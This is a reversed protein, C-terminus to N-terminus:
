SPGRLEAFLDEYTAAVAAPSAWAEVFSRANEGMGIREDPHEILHDIAKVFAEADNPPVSIGAGSRDAIEAIESGPDVSAVFPRGAALISFTKSPVSSRALGKKLVVVHIDAAALVEALREIPQPDVFTVNSLGRAHDELETRAAGTGNIVFHLSPDDRLAVAADIFLDLSQSLGVNGAYMVVTKGELGHERRYENEHEGPQITATDVFNPIVRIKSPDSVKRAVNAKLDESLVTIADAREYCRRELAKASRILTANSLYGLEIAIDPFVDQINFVYAAHRRDAIARGALGLTLPPSLALVGDVRAGKRGKLVSLATFGIFSAARRVLDTKDSTPFPHLRIIRGWPADETRVLKGEYGPEIRHDRYWPLSTIVEIEHDREALEEVLRTVVVGTPALDPAFHPTLVVLRM